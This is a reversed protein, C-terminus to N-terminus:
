EGLAHLFAEPEHGERIKVISTAYLKRGGNDHNYLYAQGYQVALRRETLSASSGVWIYVASASENAIDDLLFADSSSLSSRTAPEVKDFTVKGSADSLRFLTPPTASAGETSPATPVGELGLESLFIGAGHGGEDLSVTTWSLRTYAYHAPFKGFVQVEVTGGSTNGRENALSQVFEAAKFREKGVSGKTNFQWVKTGMDLIYADGPVFSAGEAVVERVVLRTGTATVRYLRRTEDPPPSSVHHFGTSVGGHLFVFHRFYSLFRPSEFGQIERYQVPREHLDIYPTYIRPDSSILTM